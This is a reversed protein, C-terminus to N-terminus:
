QAKTLKGNKADNSIATAWIGHSDLGRTYFEKRDYPKIGYKKVLIEANEDPMGILKDNIVVHYKYSGLVDLPPPYKSIQIDLLKPEEIVIQKVIIPEVPVETTPTHTDTSGMFGVTCVLVFFCLLSTKM